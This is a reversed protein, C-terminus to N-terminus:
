APGAEREMESLLHRKHLEHYFDAAKKVEAAEKLLDDAATDFPGFKEAQMEQRIKLDNLARITFRLLDVPIGCNVNGNM